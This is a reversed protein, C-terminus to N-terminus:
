KRLSIFFTTGKPSTQFWIRGGSGEVINKSIALGLGTGTSKTTFNPTFIRDQVDEPIGCGNDSVSIDVTKESEKLMIIIDGGPKDELAQLANKILNNFVQSIQTADTKAELGKDPGLYRIPVNQQNSRFLTIVSTLKDAVDVKSTVVEPMKAFSSFSTAINSLQDIQTILSGATEDFFADFRPDNNLKLRQMQQLRLKMPTLPNNIEHAVQRAMTRWATERESRALKSTSEELEDVMTNYQEVLKGVEDKRDYALHANTEGIKFKRMGETLQMLPRTLGRSLITGLLMSLVMVLLYPPFLRSLFDDVAIRREKASVYYPVEIYGLQMLNSNRFETYSTLYDIGGIAQKMVTTHNDSFFPETSMHRSVIGASFLQPLSSGILYGDMDYVHIDVEYTYSLDRLDINLGATNRASLEYDWPYLDQLTKQIYRTKQELSAVQREEYRSRVYRMSVFFVYVFTVFLLSLLLYQIKLSLTMHVFGHNRVLGYIAFLLLITLFVITIIIYYYAEVHQRSQTKGVKLLSPYSFSEALRTQQLPDVTLVSNNTTDACQKLSLLYHGEVDYVPVSGVAKTQRIEVERGLSFPPVYENRLQENEFSYQNKIPIITLINYADASTWRSVAVANDFVTYDWKDYHNLYVHSASLWNDSWYILGNPGFIYFLISKDKEALERIRAFDDGGLATKLQETREMAIRQQNQLDRQFRSVDTSFNSCAMLLLTLTIYFLLKKM